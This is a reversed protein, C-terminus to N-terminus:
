KQSDQYTAGEFPATDASFSSQQRWAHFQKATDHPPVFQHLLALHDPDRFPRSRLLLANVVSFVVTNAGIAFALASTTLARM